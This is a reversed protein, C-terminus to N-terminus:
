YWDSTAPPVFQDFKTKIERARELSGGFLGTRLPAWNDGAAAIESEVKVMNHKEPEHRHRWGFSGVPGWFGYAKREQRLDACVLGLMYEFRDFAEEYDPATPLYEKLPEEFLSCLHDSLPTLYNRQGGRLKNWTGRALRAQVKPNSLMRSATVHAGKKAYGAAIAARTGNLDIIYERCFTEHRSNRRSM